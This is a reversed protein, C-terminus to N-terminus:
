NSEKKKSSKKSNKEEIKAIKTAKKRDSSLANKEKILKVIADFVVKKDNGKQMILATLFKIKKNTIDTLTEAGNLTLLKYFSDVFDRREMPTLKSVWVKLLEHFNDSPEEFRDATIFSAGLVKWTFANHQQIGKDRSKVIECEGIIDFIRGIFSKSPLITKIRKVIPDNKFQELYNDKFGPGDYSIVNDIRKKISDSANLASYIAINGGKSHGIVILRDKSLRSAATLYKLGERQSPIPTFLAMNLDEKWGVITDDTGRYVVYTIKNECSFCIASFQKEVDLCVDNVYAWIKVSSFRKTTSIAKLLLLIEKPIIAGLSFDEGHKEFFLKSAEQITVAGGDKMSPVVDEFPIYSLESFILGDVENQSSQCFTLDSRWDVYDFLNEM